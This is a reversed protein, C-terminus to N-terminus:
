YLHSTAHYREITSHGAITIRRRGASHIRCMPLEIFRAPNCKISQYLPIQSIRSDLSLSLVYCSGLPLHLFGSSFWLDVSVVGAGDSHNSQCSSFRIILSSIGSFAFIMTCFTIVPKMLCLCIIDHSFPIFMSILTATFSIFGAFVPTPASLYFNM